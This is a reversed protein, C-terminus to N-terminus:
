LHLDGFGVESLSDMNGSVRYGMVVFKPMDQMLLLGKWVSQVLPQKRIPTVPQGSQSPLFSEPSSCCLSDLKSVILFNIESIM